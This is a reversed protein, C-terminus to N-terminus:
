HYQLLLNYLLKSLFCLLIMIYPFLYFSKTLEYYDGTDINYCLKPLKILSSITRYLNKPIINGIRNSTTFAIKNFYIKNNIIYFDVRVFNLGESLISALVIMKELCEYKDVSSFIYYYSNNKFSSKNNMNFFDLMHYINKSTEVLILKPIGNFCFLQYNILDGRNDKIFKEIIIKHKIDRYQLDLTSHFAYNEKMWKVVKIKAKTLNLKSKEKVIINYGNGHNCKIVFNNPLKEFDIDTFKNYIGLLPILYQEGIKEIIWDRVLYKDCLLTKIPTSDYIKLWQLKEDFTKPNDLNLPKKNKVSWLKKLEKKYIDDRKFFFNAYPTLKAISWWYEEMYIRLSNWPKRKNSYHIIYPDNKAEIIDKEGYLKILLPTHEKLALVQVNYKPPLTLIKGFCAVNLVDQDQFYYNRKSLEIFKQTMNEKRIEKLNMLLIGANLYQRMSSINLRKCNREENFYYFPSVVGALYNDKIDINFLKSLDKCACIDNDLYICKDIENPLLDGILLRYYTPLTIHHIHMKIYNFMKEDVKIFHIYCIYKEAISLIKKANSKSFEFPVLLYFIYYTNKNKNELLSIMTTYMYLAYKDDSSLVIPITLHTDKFNNLISEYKLYDIFFSSNSSYQEKFKFSKYNFITSTKENYLKLYENNYQCNKDTMYEEMYNFEPNLAVKKM